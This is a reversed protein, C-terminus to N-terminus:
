IKDRRKQTNDLENINLIACIDMLFLPFVRYQAFIPHIGYAGSLVISEPTIKTPRAVRGRRYAASKKTYKHM